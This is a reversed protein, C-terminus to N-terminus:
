VMQISKNVEERRKIEGNLETQIRVVEVELRSVIIEDKERRKRTGRRLDLDFENFGKAIAIMREKTSTTSRM